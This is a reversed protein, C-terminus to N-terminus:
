HRYYNLIIEDLNLNFYSSYNINKVNGILIEMTKYNILLHKPPIPWINSHTINKRINEKILTYSTPIIKILDGQNVVYSKTKIIKENVM